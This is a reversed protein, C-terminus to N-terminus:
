DYYCSNKVFFLVFETNLRHCQFLSSITCQVDIHLNSLISVNYIYIYIKKITLVTILLINMTTIEVICMIVCLHCQLIFHPQWITENGEKAVGNGWSLFISFSMLGPTLKKRWFNVPCPDTLVM